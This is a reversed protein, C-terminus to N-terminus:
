LIKEIDKQVVDWDLYSDPNNQYNTLRQDLIAKHADSLETSSTEEMTKFHLKNVLEVFFPVQKDPVYVTVPKMIEKKYFKM